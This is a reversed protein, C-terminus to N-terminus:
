PVYCRKKESKCYLSWGNSWLIGSDIDAYGSKFNSKEWPATSNLLLNNPNMLDKDSLLSYLCNQFSHVVINVKKKSPLVIEHTRPQLDINLKHELELIVKQRSYSQQLFFDPQKKSCKQAWQFIEKYLYLPAKARKLLEMLEVSADLRFDPIFTEARSIKENHLDLLSSEIPLTFENEEENLEKNEEIGFTTYLTPNAAESVNDIDLDMNFSDENGVSFDEDNVVLSNDLSMNNDDTVNNNRDIQDTDNDEPAHFTRFHNALGRLSNEWCGCIKCQSRPM